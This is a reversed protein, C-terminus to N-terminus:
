IPSKKRRQNQSVLKVCTLLKTGFLETLADSVDELTPTLSRLVNCVNLDTTSPNKLQVCSTMKQVLSQILVLFVTLKMQTQFTLPEKTMLQLFIQDLAMWVPILRQAGILIQHVLSVGELILM